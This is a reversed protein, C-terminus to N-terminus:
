RDPDKQLLRGYCNINDCCVKIEDKEMFLCQIRELTVPKGCRACNTKGSNVQDMIGLETLISELDRKHVAQVKERDSWRKLM